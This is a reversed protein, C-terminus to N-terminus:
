GTRTQLVYRITAAALFLWNAAVVALVVGLGGTGRGYSHLGVGLVYNVGYWAMLISTAGIVSFAALGFNGFLGVYRGHLIALYVLLSILAWVEKADWGWFRGWAVDAWLAGLLTGAALLLVAVQVARYIFTSLHECVAPERRRRPRPSAQQAASSDPQSQEGSETGPFEQYKGFLYHFLALDGLALALAGAGYSATITLVHATLWFNDRLVPRLPSISKDLIPAPAYYALLAAVLGVVAGSFAYVKRHLVEQFAERVGLRRWTWPITGLSWLGALIARPVYWMSCLLLGWGALWAVLDNATLAGGREVRPLLAVVTYGEAEGYHVQTLVYFVVVMLVLRPGASLWRCWKWASESFVAAPVASSRVLIPWATWQWAVRLGSGLLPWLALGLGLAAVALAVFVVTEFMNTLPVWGTIRWRLVLGYLIFGQALCLVGMAVAFMPKRIVGFSLAFLVAGALYTIWAWRFPDVENYHVELDVAGPPPYQTALLASRDCKRVPLKERLPGIAEGLQRVAGVFEEMAASFREAREPQSRDLYARSVEQFAKRVAALPEAPYEALTEESANLVMQWTLWPQPNEEPTRNEELAFPNLSPVLRLAGGVSVAQSAVPTNDFLASQVEYALRTLDRTRSVLAALFSELQRQQEGPIPPPNRRLHLQYDECWNAMTQAAKRLRAAETELKRVPVPKQGLGERLSVFAKQFEHFADRSEREAELIKGLAEPTAMWVDHLQALRRHLLSREGLHEQPRFTLERWANYADILEHAKRDVGSIELRQGSQEAEQRRRLFDKWRQLGESQEVQLPSVYKIPRGQLNERPLSLIKERLEHHEGVLFPVREWRESEVLWSFLLEYPEFTRPRDDPLLVRAEAYEPRSLDEGPLSEVLSLRPRERGCIRRVLERAFTDLPMMRGADFVPLRRWASWDLDEGAAGPAIAWTALLGLFLSGNRISKKVGKQKPISIFM